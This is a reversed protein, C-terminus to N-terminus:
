TTNSLCHVTEKESHTTLVKNQLILLSLLLSLGGSICGCLLFFDLDFNVMCKVSMCIENGTLRYGNYCVEKAM